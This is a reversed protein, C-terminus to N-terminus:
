RVKMRMIKRIANTILQRVRERTLNMYYAVEELGMGRHKDALDLACSEIMESPDKRYLKMRQEMVDLFLNYRCSVFVCPRPGNICENRNIPRTPYPFRVVERPCRYIPRPFKKYEEASM